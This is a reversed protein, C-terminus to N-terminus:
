WLCICQVIHESINIKIGQQSCNNSDDTNTKDSSVVKDNKQFWKSVTNAEEQLKSQLAVPNDDATFPTNDDAYIIVEADFDNQEEEDIDLPNVVEPLENIFILFM